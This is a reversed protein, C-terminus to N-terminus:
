LGSALRTVMNKLLGSNNVLKMGTNRLWNVGPDETSYLRKFGEMLSAMLLNQPQRSREYRSLLAPDGINVGTFRSQNLESALAQADAFGLNAGQGALPHITHAADGLLALNRKVYRLSHQQVLPFCFRRDTGLVEGLEGESAQTLRACFAEADEGTNEGQGTKEVPMIASADVASWVISCLDPDDLPLFALPGQPTFWQRAVGGHDKQTRITSVVADQGYAWRISRMTSLQRIRSNGGDAGILLQCDLQTNEDTGLPNVANNATAGLQLSYGSETKQMSKLTVGWYQSVQADDALCRTLGFLVERNEVICGLSDLNIEAATFEVFASGRSDRVLM